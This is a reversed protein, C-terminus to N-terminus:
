QNQSAQFIPKSVDGALRFPLVMYSQDQNLYQKAPPNIKLIEIYASKPMQLEGNLQLDYQDIGILGSFNLDVESHKQNSIGQLRLDLQIHKQNKLDMSGSSKQFSIAQPDISALYAKGQNNINKGGLLQKLAEIYITSNDLEGNELVFAASAQFKNQQDFSASYNVDFRSKQRKRAFNKIAFNLKSFNAKGELEGEFASSKVNAFFSFFGTYTLDDPLYADYFPAFKHMASVDLNNSSINAKLKRDILTAENIEGTITITSNAVNLDIKEFEITNKEAFFVIPKTLIISSNLSKGQRKDDNSALQLNSTVLQGNINLGEKLNGSAKLDLNTTGQILKIKYIDSIFPYIRNFEAVNITNSFLRLDAQPNDIINDITGTLSLKSDNIAISINDVSTTQKNLSINTNSNLHINFPKGKISKDISALVINDLNVLGIVNLKNWIDGELNYTMNALGSEPLALTRRYRKDKFIAEPVNALEFDLPADEVRYQMNMPSEEIRGISIIPGITGSIDVNQILAGPTKAAISINAIKGKIVNDIKVDIDEIEYKVPQAFLLESYIDWHMNEINIHHARIWNSFRNAKQKETIDEFNNKFRSDISIQVHPYLVNIESLSIRGIFFAFPNYRVEVSEASLAWPSLYLHDKLYQENEAIRFSDLRIGTIGLMRPHFSFSVDRGLNKHVIREMISLEGDKESVQKTEPFVKKTESFVKTTESFFLASTIIFFLIKKHKIRILTRMILRWLKIAM